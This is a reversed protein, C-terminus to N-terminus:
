AIEINGVASLVRFGTDAAICVLQVCDGSDTSQLYGTIGTTTSANGFVISQGAGQAIKWGGAGSGVINVTAGVAATAPLTFVVPESANTSIYGKDVVLDTDEATALWPLRGGPLGQPGREGVTFKLVSVEDEVIVRTVEDEVIVTLNDNIMAM